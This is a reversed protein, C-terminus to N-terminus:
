TSESPNRGTNSLTGVRDLLRYWFPAGLAAAGISILLGLIKLPWGWAGDEQNPQSWGLPFGTGELFERSKDACTAPDESAQCLKESTAQSVAATRVAENAYLSRAIAVSDIGAAVVVVTAIVIVWRKAWRRYSGTIREMQRNFWEETCALFRQVDGGASKFLGTLAQRLEPSETLGNVGRLLSDSSIQDPGPTLLHVLVQAFVPAPLYAPNRTAKGLPTAHKFPQVLGHGMVDEVTIKTRLGGPAPAGAEQGPAARDAPAAADAGLASSYQKREENRNNMWQLQLQPAATTGELLNRLGRLLYKARKKVWNAIMEVLGSCVLALAYFLFILGLITDLVASGTM